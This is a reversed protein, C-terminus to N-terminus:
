ARVRHEIGEAVRGSPGDQVTQPLSGLRDDLDRFAQRYGPRRDRLVEPHQFVGPQHDVARLPRSPKVGDVRIAQKREPGEELEEPSVGKSPKDGSGISRGRPSAM